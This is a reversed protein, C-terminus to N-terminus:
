EQKDLLEIKYSYTPDATTVYHVSSKRTSLICVAPQTIRRLDTGGPIFILPKRLEPEVELFGIFQEEL